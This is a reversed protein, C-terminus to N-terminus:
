GLRGFFTMRASESLSVGPEANYALVALMRTGEGEVPAVRHLSDRGRFMVLAGAPMQLREPRIKGDLVAAVGEFNMDGKAESRLNKIYEFQGGQEPPEIMLTIAFSSNDFHWGLEQGPGAYHLNISSIPDAYKFLRAEGLVMCVFDQFVDSNYLQRLESEADIQDDGIIGKTSIVNRNRPHDDTFDPDPPTLYVNHDQACFYALNQKEIGESRIGRVAGPLLFGPMVLAGDRAVSTRCEAQFQPDDLPYERLNVISNLDTM